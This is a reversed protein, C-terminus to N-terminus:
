KDGQEIWATNFLDSTTDGSRVSTGSASLMLSGQSTPITQSWNNLVIAGGNVPIQGSGSEFYNAPAYSYTYSNFNGSLTQADVFGSMSITSSGNSISINTIVASTTGFNFGSVQATVGDSYVISAFTSSGSQVTYSASTHNMLSTLSSKISSYTPSSEFGQAATLLAELDSWTPFSTTYSAM